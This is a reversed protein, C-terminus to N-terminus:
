PLTLGLDEPVVTPADWGNALVGLWLALPMEDVSETYFEPFLTLCHLDSEATYSRFNPAAAHIPGLQGNLGALVSVAAIDTQRGLLHWFYPQQVPDYASNLQTFLNGGYTNAAAIYLDAFTLAAGAERYAPIWAPVVPYANWATLPGAATAAYAGASDGLQVVPQGAYQQIVEPAYVISALAGASCGAVFALEPQPVHQYLYDLAARANAAGNHLVTTQSGDPATYTHSAAGLHADGTCYPVYIITYAGFPNMPHNLDFIGYGGDTLIAPNDAPTTLDITPDYIGPTTCTLDDWCLGGGQFYILARNISGPRVYFSYPTGDA